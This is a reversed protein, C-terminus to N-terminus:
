YSKLNYLELTKKASNEWSFKQQLIEIIKLENFVNIQGNVHKVIANRLSEVSEVDIFAGDPFGKLTEIFSPLKSVIMPKGFALALLLAGSQSINRYPFLLVDADVILQNLEIDDFFRSEWNIGLSSALSYKELLLKEETKGAITVEIKNRVDEPLGSIADVLLDTGKYYSQIGFMLFKLRKNTTTKIPMKDPMFIGHYVVEINDCPVEFEVNLVSKSSETHVIFKDFYKKIQSFRNRYINKQQITSDHPFTNHQTLIFKTKPLILRYLALFYKELGVYELFPLWQFHVVQYKNFLFHFILYIYNFVGEVAKLLKIFRSKYTSSFRLLRKVKYCPSYVGQNYPTALVVINPSVHKLATCLAHEYYPVKGSIDVICYRTNSM